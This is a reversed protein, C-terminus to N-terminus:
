GLQTELLWERMDQDELAYIGRSPRWVLSKERLADLARQVERTDTDRGLTKSISALTGEAFPAFKEGDEILQRLVARQVDTLAGYDSQHQAWRAARMDVARDRVASSLGASGEDSLATERVLRLLPEPQHGLLTLATEVDDASLQNDAALRPNFATVVAEAFPRGLKPFDTITAGYFPQTHGIVLGSLKDRHSGTFILSLRAGGDRQNMADRAAKLAFMADTGAASRLAHQAEDIILVVDKDARKGIEILVDSFTGSKKADSDRLAVSVGGVGISDFPIADWFKEKTTALEGLADALAKAILAGPDADRDSWLDCYITFKGQSQLLPVLERRLFTSKGTRRPAALFLGSPEGFLPDPNLKEAIQTALDGRQVYFDAM